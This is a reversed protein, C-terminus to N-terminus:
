TGLTLRLKLERTPAKQNNPLVTIIAHIQNIGASKRTGARLLYSGPPLKNFCFAGNEGTMCAARRESNLASDVDKYDTSSSSYNFVEVIAENEPEGDPLLVRGAIRNVKLESLLIFENAGHSTENTPVTKCDCQSNGSLLSVLILSILTM